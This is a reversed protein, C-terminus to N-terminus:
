LIKIQSHIIDQTLPKDFGSYQFSEINQIIQAKVINQILLVCYEAEFAQWIM